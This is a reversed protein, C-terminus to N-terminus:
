KEREGAAFYRRDLLIGDESLLEAVCTGTAHAYNLLLNCGSPFVVKITSDTKGLNISQEVVKAM